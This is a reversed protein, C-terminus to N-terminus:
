MMHVNLVKKTAESYLYLVHKFRVIEVNYTNYHNTNAHLNACQRIKM